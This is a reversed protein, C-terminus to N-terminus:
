LIIENRHCYFFLHHHLLLLLLLLIIKLFNMNIIIKMEKSGVLYSGLFFFFVKMKTGVIRNM